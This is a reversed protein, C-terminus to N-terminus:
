LAVERPPYVQRASSWRKKFDMVLEASREGEDIIKTTRKAAMDKFSDDSRWVRDDAYIYRDHIDATVRIETRGPLDAGLRKFSALAGKWWRNEVEPGLVWLHVGEPLDEGLLAVVDSGFWADEVWIHRKASQVIERLQQWAKSREGTEFRRKSPGGAELAKGEAVKAFLEIEDHKQAVISWRVPFEKKVDHGASLRDLDEQTWSRRRVGRVKGAKQLTGLVTGFTECFYYRRKLPSALVEKTTLKAQAGQEDYLYLLIRLVDERCLKNYEAKGGDLAEALDPASLPEAMGQQSLWADVDIWGNSLRQLRGPSDIEIALIHPAVTLVVSNEEQSIQPGAFL